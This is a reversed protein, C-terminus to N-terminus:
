RDRDRNRRYTQRGAVWTMAVMERSLIKRAQSWPRDLLCLDGPAGVVLERGPMGAAELPSTFLSVAREPSLAEGEGMVLGSRTTRTVAARIGVWPDLEGYPADSGAALAVGGDLFGQGRYLWDRDNPEVDRAYDDGREYIFGPQTVVWVQAEALMEVLEPPAVSAHEIRDGLFPGAERIAAVALVLEARTVCHIAVARQSEHAEGISGVLAEFEPLAPERLLIKVPGLTMPSEATLHANAEAMVVLRQDLEGRDIAGALLELEACDRGPTADTVGTVGCRSLERSLSGLHPPSTSVLRERLWADQYYIRGTLDGASNTEVGEPLDAPSLDLADIAASNLSWLAGSRHQIRVRTHSPSLSDLRERDLSGAVSEHYAVGRIWGDRSEPAARLAQQLEPATRVNPPGCSVSRRAAALAYLHIHHDHLGPLLAAGRADIQSRARSDAVSGIAVIKGAVVELDVLERYGMVQTNKIVFDSM